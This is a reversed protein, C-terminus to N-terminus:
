VNELNSIKDIDSDKETDRYIRSGAEFSDICTNTNNTQYADTFENDLWKKNDIEWKKIIELLNTYDQKGRLRAEEAQVQLNVKHINGAINICLYADDSKSINESRIITSQTHGLLKKQKSFSESEFQEIYYKCIM